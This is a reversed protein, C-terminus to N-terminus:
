GLRTLPRTHAFYEDTVPMVEKASGASVYSGRESLRRVGDGNYFDIKLLRDRREIPRGLRQQVRPASSGPQPDIFSIAHRGPPLNHIQSRNRRNGLTACSAMRGADPLGFVNIRLSHGV